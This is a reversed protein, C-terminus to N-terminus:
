LKFNSIGLNIGGNEEMTGTSFIIKSITITDNWTYGDFNKQVKYINKM